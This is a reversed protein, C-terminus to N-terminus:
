KDIVHVLEEIVTAFDTSRTILELVDGRAALVEVFQDFDTSEISSGEKTARATKAFVATSRITGPWDSVDRSSTVTSANKSHATSRPGNPLFTGTM